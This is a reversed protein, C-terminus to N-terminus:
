KGHRDPEWAHARDRIGILLLGGRGNALASVDKAYEFTERDDDFRYPRGKFELGDDEAGGVFQDFDAADLIALVEDATMDARPYRGRANPKGIPPNLANRRSAPFLFGGNGPAEHSRIIPSSGVVKQM